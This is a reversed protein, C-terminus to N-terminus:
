RLTARCYDRYEAYVETAARDTTVYIADLVDRRGPTEAETVNCLAVLRALAADMYAQRLQAIRENPRVVDEGTNV